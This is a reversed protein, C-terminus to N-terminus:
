GRETRSVLNVFTSPLSAQEDLLTRAAHAEVADQLTVAWEASLDFGPGALVSALLAAGGRVLEVPPPAAIAALKEPGLAAVLQANEVDEMGEFCEVCSPARSRVRSGALERARDLAFEAAGLILDVRPGTAAVLQKPPVEKTSAADIPPGGNQEPGGPPMPMEMPQGDPGLKITPPQPEGTKFLVPDRKDKAMWEIVQEDSPADETGLWGHADRLQDGPLEGRDYLERANASQDPHTIIAAPDYWVVYDQWDAVEDAKLAPRLYSDTLNACLLACVPFILTKAVQEDVQWANWHTMDGTGKLIEAPFDMGTAIREICESRLGTERYTENPDSFRLHLALDKISRGEEVGTRLMFPVVASASGEDAIPKMMHDTMAKFLPDARLDRQDAKADVPTPMQISEDLILLGASTLRSRVRARVAMQLLLLEEFLDLVGQMPSDALASHKPSPRWMRYAVAENPGLLEFASDDDVDNTNEYVIGQGGPAKFRRLRGDADVRLEATSVFEWAEPEDDDGTGTALLYGEGTLLMLRGFSRQMESREPSGPDHVRNLYEVIKEDDIEERETGDIKAVYLRIQSMMNGQYTAAFHAEPTMEYYQLARRQWAQELRKFKTGDSKVVRQAAATLSPLKLGSPDFWARGKSRGNRTEPADPRLLGV